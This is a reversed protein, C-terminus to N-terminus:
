KGHLEEFLQDGQMVNVVAYELQISTFTAKM